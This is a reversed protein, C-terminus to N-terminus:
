DAAFPFDGGVESTLRRVTPYKRETADSDFPLLVDDESKQDPVQFAFPPDSTPPSPPYEMTRVTPQRSRDTLRNNVSHLNSHTPSPYALQSREADENTPKQPAVLPDPLFTVVRRTSDARMGSKKVNADVGTLAPRFKSPLRFAGSTKFM